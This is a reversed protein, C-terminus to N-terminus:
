KRNLIAKPLPVFEDEDGPVKPFVALNQDYWDVKAQEL